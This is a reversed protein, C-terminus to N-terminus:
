AMFGRGDPMRPLLHDEGWIPPVRTKAYETLKTQNGHIVILDKGDPSLIVAHPGHEGGGNLPRLLKVEDLEGDGNTDRVRYLGHNYKAGKNVVVYLSDFAWLLGQAEGIDVPIKQVQTDSAKGGIEPPTVRFLGGYQDSVILRGKPDACMSVWSGEKDKPVSYLLEVQFGKAVKLTEAPTATPEKLKGAAALAAEDIKVWPQDGLKAVVTAASWKSADFGADRWNRPARGNLMTARWSGDTVVARPEAWGSELVLRALFGAPGNANKARVALVPKGVGRKPEAGLTPSLDKMVPQDWLHGSLVEEGDLFVTMEDDCTAYIRAATVGSTIEFEKRFYVVQNPQAKEGLWIWSPAPLTKGNVKGDAPPGGKAPAKTQPDAALAAGLLLTLLGFASLRVVPLTRMLGIRLLSGAPAVFGLTPTTPLRLSQLLGAGTFCSTGPLFGNARSASKHPAPNTENTEPTPRPFRPFSCFGPFHFANPAM